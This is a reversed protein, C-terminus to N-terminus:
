MKPGRFEKYGRLDKSEPPRTWPLLGSEHLMVRRQACELFIKEVDPIATVVGTKAEAPQIAAAPIPTITTAESAGNVVVTQARAVELSCIHDESGPIGRLLGCFNRLIEGQLHPVDRPLVQKGGAVRDSEITINAPARHVRGREGYIDIIPDTHGACAHTYNVIAEIGSDLHIRFSCTDYNEIKPNARYLEAEIRVPRGSQNPESGLLFLLVNIYHAMANNAPSDMVWVGERKFAGAWSARGYYISGRSWCAHLTAGHIKGIAGDLLMRKLRMTTPDSMDQYGIAAPRNARDRAAIMADVDQVCGAAPKECIVAKGAELANITFPAHLHIPVPLWVAEFPEALLDEFRQHVRVGQKELVAIQERHLEVNPECCAILRAHPRGTKGPDSDHQVLKTIGTAYGGLGVTAFPISNEM